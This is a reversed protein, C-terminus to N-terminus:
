VLVALVLSLLNNGYHLQAHELNYDGRERLFEDMLRDREYAATRNHHFPFWAWSRKKEDKTAKHLAIKLNATDVDIDDCISEIIDHINQILRIGQDSILRLRSHVYPQLIQYTAHFARIEYGLSRFAAYNRFHKNLLRAGLNASTQLIFQTRFDRVREM